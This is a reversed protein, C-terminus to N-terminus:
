RQKTWSEYLRWMLKMIRGRKWSGNIWASVQKSTWGEECSESGNGRMVESTVNMSGNGDGILKFPFSEM